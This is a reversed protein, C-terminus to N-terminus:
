HSYAAQQKQNFPAPMIAFRIDVAAHLLIPVLLSGTAVYLGCFFAGALGTVVMGTIGQYSHALGFAVAGVVLLATGNLGLSTHLTVLLWGRFVIEECIGASIAVAAWLIREQMTSPVLSFFDPVLKRWWPSPVAAVSAAGKRNAKFRAIMLGVTGCALGILVGMLAGTNFASRNLISQLWPTGGLDLFTPNLKSWDFRLAVLALLATTWEFMLARKYVRIRAQTDGNALAQRLQRYHSGFQIVEWGIYGALIISVVISFLQM